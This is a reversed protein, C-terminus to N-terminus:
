KLTPGLTDRHYLILTRMYPGIHEASEFGADKAASEQRETSVDRSEAFHKLDRYFGLSIVDWAAGQLRTFTFNEPRGVGKLYVNEMEREKVLAERKGPLAVFMESHFYGAKAYAKRLEELPPGEVIMDEHLASCEHFLRTFEAEPLGAESAAKKRRNMRGSTYYESYSGIPLVLLLDWQDGQAHRMWMPREDGSAEFVPMRKEYLEILEMLKGPAARVMTMKYLYSAEVEQSAFLLAVLLLLKRM